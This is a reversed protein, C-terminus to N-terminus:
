CIKTMQDNEPPCPLERQQLSRVKEDASGKTLISHSEREKQEFTEECNTQLSGSSVEKGSEGMWQKIQCLRGFPCVEVTWFAFVKITVKNLHNRFYELTKTVCCGM